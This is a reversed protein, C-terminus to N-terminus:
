DQGNGTLLRRTKGVYALGSLVTVVLALWVVAIKTIVAWRPQTVNALQYLVTCIAVSQV